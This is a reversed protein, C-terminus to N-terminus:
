LIVSGWSGGLFHVAGLKKKNYSPIKIFLLFAIFILLINLLQYNVVCHKSGVLWLEPAFSM